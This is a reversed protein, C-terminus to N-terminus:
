IVLDLKQLTGATRDDNLYLGSGRILALSRNTDDNIAFATDISGTYLAGIKAEQLPQLITQDGERRWVGM